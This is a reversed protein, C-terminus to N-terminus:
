NGSTQFKEMLQRLQEQDIQGSSILVSASHVIWATILIALVSLVTGVIAMNKGEMKYGLAFCGYVLGIIGLIGGYFMSTVFGLGGFILSIKAFKVSSKEKQM